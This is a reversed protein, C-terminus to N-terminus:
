RLVGAGDGRIRVTRRRRDRGAAPGRNGGGRYGGRLGRGAPRPAPHRHDAGRGTRGRPLHRRYGAHRRQVRRDPRLVAAAGAAREGSRPGGLLLAHPFLRSVAEVFVDMFADYRDAAVRPHQNGLYAPDGLLRLQNTGVDLMVPLVRAPNIGAAATYVALKGIAIDMGGLGWDDIGLIGEGDTAVILDVDDPGRGTNRLSEEILEQQNVSLFVGRLRRYVHSFREIAQAVVPTYVVPLMEQLHTGLLHYFLVLNRDRLATLYVNKDLDSPQGCYQEYARAAQDHLTIVQPPLQGILGLDRREELPFATGKNIRPDHLIDWGRASTEWVGEAANFHTPV